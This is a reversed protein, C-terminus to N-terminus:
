SAAKVTWEIPTDYSGGTKNLQVILGYIQAWKVIARKDGRRGLKTLHRNVDETKKAIEGLYLALIVQREDETKCKALLGRCRARDEDAVRDRPIIGKIVKECELILESALETRTKM